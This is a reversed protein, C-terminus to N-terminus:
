RCVICKHVIYEFMYHMLKIKDNIILIQCGRGRRSTIAVCNFAHLIWCEVSKEKANLHMMRTNLTYKKQKPTILTFVSSASNISYFTLSFNM